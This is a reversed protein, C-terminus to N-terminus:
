AHGKRLHVAVPDDYPIGHIAPEALHIETFARRVLQPWGNGREYKNIESRLVHEEADRAMLATMLYDAVPAAGSVNAIGIRALETARDGEGGPWVEVRVVIV